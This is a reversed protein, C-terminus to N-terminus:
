IAIFTDTESYINKIADNVQIRIGNFVIQADALDACRTCVCGMKNTLLTDLAGVTLTDTMSNVYNRTATKYCACTCPTAILGAITTKIDNFNSILIEFDTM